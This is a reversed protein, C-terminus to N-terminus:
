NQNLCVPKLNYKYRNSLIPTQVHLPRRYDIEDIFAGADFAATDSAYGDYRQAASRSRFYNFLIFIFYFYFLKKEM